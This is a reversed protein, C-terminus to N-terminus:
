HLWQQQQVPEGSARARPVADPGVKRRVRAQDHRVQDAVALGCLGVVDRPVGEFCADVVKKTQDADCRMGFNNCGLGVITVDLSGIKRTEM